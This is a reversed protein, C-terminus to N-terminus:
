KCVEQCSSKIEAKCFLYANLAGGLGEGKACPEGAM